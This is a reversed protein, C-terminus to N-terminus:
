KSLNFAKTAHITTTDFVPISVDEQQILLPIETCGLIVGEAGEKELKNIITTYAEKSTAKLVGKSLEDYIITHVIERDVKEPIIVEIGMNKLVDIYFTKEMTYKTGLLAVKSIKKELIQEGTAEAIHIVPIQVVKRIAEITLHMTNACILICTAGANELSKAANAMIGDLVDWKGESQLKSIEGFDVSNIIVKASHKDGYEKSALNNLVQYYMITSQPTIGGILGITKM